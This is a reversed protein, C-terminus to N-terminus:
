IQIPSSNCNWTLIIMGMVQMSYLQWSRRRFTIHTSFKTRRSAWSQEQTVSQSKVNMKSFVEVVHSNSPSTDLYYKIMAKTIWWLNVTAVMIVPWHYLSCNLSWHSHGICFADLHYFSGSCHWTSCADPYGSTRTVFVDPNIKSFNSRSSFSLEERLRYWPRTIEPYKFNWFLAQSLSSVSYNNESCSNVAKM